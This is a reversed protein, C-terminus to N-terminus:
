IKNIEYQILMAYGPSPHAPSVNCQSISISLIREHNYLFWQNRTAPPDQVNLGQRTGNLIIGIM